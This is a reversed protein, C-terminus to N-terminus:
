ANPLVANSQHDYEPMQCCLLYNRLYYQYMNQMSRNIHSSRRAIPRNAASRNNKLFQILISRAPWNNKFRALWPYQEKVVDYVEGLVVPPVDNWLATKPIGAAIASECVCMAFANYTEKDQGICEVLQCGGRGPVERTPYPILDDAEGVSQNADLAKQLHKRKKHSRETSQSHHIHTLIQPSFYKGLKESLEQYDAERARLLRELEKKNLKSIDATTQSKERPM